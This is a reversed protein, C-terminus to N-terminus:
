IMSIIFTMDDDVRILQKPLGRLQSRAFEERESKVKM